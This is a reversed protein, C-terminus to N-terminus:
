PYKEQLEFVGVIDFFRITFLSLLFLFASLTVDVDRTLKKGPIAFNEM